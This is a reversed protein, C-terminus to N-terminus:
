TLKSLKKDVIDIPYKLALKRLEFSFEAYTDAWCKAEEPTYNYFGNGNIVGTGGSKVIDDILEPVATANSLTPFLDKMVAHYAPIGTLDMWRFIGMLTIWYGPGNRVARDIDDVTAYGNEVLYFAERYMAYMLRNNLFGRIDKKMLTPEKAWQHALKYLWEANIVDSKEGCIIELFRTTFAPIMFHLGYFREPHQTLRQLDSIPIASTNSTLIADPAIVKEIKEFVSKKVDISELTCEIIIKCPKLLNYDTSVTLQQLFSEPDSDILGEKLSLQLNELIRGKAHLMDAEMPAIGVVPHGAILLCTTISSGMLGLGVVAVPIKGTEFLENM